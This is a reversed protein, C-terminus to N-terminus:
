ADGEGSAQDCLGTAPLGAEAISDRIDYDRVLQVFQGTESMRIYTSLILPRDVPPRSWCGIAGISISLSGRQGARQIALMAERVEELRARGADSLRYIHIRTGPRQEAELWARDANDAVQDLPAMVTVASEPDADRRRVTVAMEVGDPALTFDAPARVAARFAALDTTQMDVSRLKVLSTAPVHGCAALMVTLALAVCIGGISRTHTSHRPPFRMPIAARHRGSQPIM